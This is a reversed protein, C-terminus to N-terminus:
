ESREGELQKLQELVDALKADLEAKRTDLEANRQELEDIRRQAAANEERTTAIQQDVQGKLARLEIPSLRELDDGPAPRAPTTAQAAALAPAGLALLLLALAPRFTM